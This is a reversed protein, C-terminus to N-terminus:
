GDHHQHQSLKKEDQFKNNLGFGRSRTENRHPNNEKKKKKEYTTNSESRAAAAPM